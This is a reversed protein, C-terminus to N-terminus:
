LVLALWFGVDMPWYSRQSNKLGISRLVLKIEIRTCVQVNEISCVQVNYFLSYLPIRRQLLFIKNSM